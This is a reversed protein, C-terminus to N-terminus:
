ATIEPSEAGPFSPLLGAVLRAAFAQAAPDESARPGAVNLRGVSHGAIFDAVLGIADEVRVGHRDILLLPRGVLRAHEITLRTGPGALSSHIVLTADSEEVNRRTRGDYGAGPLEILPYHPPIPGDEALRGEPCYGGCSAGAALAADLAARDVGTQGGSMITLM